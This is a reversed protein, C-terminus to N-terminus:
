ASSPMRSLTADRPSPSTYLLCHIREGIVAVKRKQELDFQNIFRGLKIDMPLIQRFVPTDGSIEADTVKTGSSIDSRGRYSDLRIRPALTEIGNLKQVLAETDDNTMKVRRGPPLGQWPESTARGWLYIANSAYGAMSKNVGSQIGNGFGLM